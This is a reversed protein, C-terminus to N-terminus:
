ATSYFAMPQQHSIIPLISNYTNIDYWLHMDQLQHKYMKEQTHGNEDLKLLLRPNPSPDCRSRSQDGWHNIVILRIIIDIM